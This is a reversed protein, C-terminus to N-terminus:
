RIISTKGSQSKGLLWIVPIPLQQRAADLRERLEEDSIRPTLVAKGLRQWWSLGTNPKEDEGDAGIIQDRTRTSPSKYPM